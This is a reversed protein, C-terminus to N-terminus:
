SNHENWLTCCTKDCSNCFRYGLVNSSLSAKAKTKRLVFFILFHKYYSGKYFIFEKFKVFFFKFLM